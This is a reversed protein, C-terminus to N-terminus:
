EQVFLVSHILSYEFVVHVVVVVRVDQVCAFAVAGLVRVQPNLRQAVKAAALLVVALLVDNLNEGVDFLVVQESREHHDFDEGLITGEGHVRDFYIDNSVSIWFRIMLKILEKVYNLLIQQLSHTAFLLFDLLVLLGHAPMQLTYHLQLILDVRQSRLRHNKLCVLALIAALLEIKRGYMTQAIM